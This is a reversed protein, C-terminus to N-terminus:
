EGGQNKIYKNAKEAFIRNVFISFAPLAICIEVKCFICLVGSSLIWIFLILNQKIMISDFKDRDIFKYNEKKLRYVDFPM